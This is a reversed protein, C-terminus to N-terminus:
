PTPAPTPHISSAPSGGRFRIVKAPSGAAIANAPIDRTVVAGAAIVAGEGITVGQLVVAGYGLWAGDGVVVDGKSTLPQDMVPIGPATGHDYCYFGCNPAIEVKAGIRVASIFAHLHCGPQIHTDAGIEIRGGMGTEVFTNGYVHVRDHLEVPGGDATQYIIVGDGLYVNEGPHFHRHAVRARPSIFGHPTRAALYSMQHYPVSHRSALWAALRGSVGRHDAMRLWLARWCRRISHLCHQRIRRM